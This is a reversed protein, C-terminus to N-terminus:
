SRRNIASVPGAQARRLRVARLRGRLATWLAARKLWILDVLPAVVFWFPLTTGLIDSHRAAPVFLLVISGVALWAFLWIPVASAAIPAPRSPTRLAPECHRRQTAHASVTLPVVLM